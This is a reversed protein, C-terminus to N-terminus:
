EFPDEVGMAEMFDRPTTIPMGKVRKLATLDVDGSVLWDCGADLAAQLISDDKPDRSRKPPQQPDPQILSYEVIEAAWAAAVAEPAKFKKQLTAVFERLVQASTVLQYRQRVFITLEAGLSSGM